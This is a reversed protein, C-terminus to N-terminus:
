LVARIPKKKKYVAYYWMIATAACLSYWTIIYQWHENRLNIRTQGGFPGGPVTSALDADVFIPETSAYRAMAPVDRYSWRNGAIDNEPAFPARKETSRIIAVIEVEGKIQGQPRTEPKVKDRSVWGRNVLITIGLDTCRFPTVVWTGSPGASSILGGGAGENNGHMYLSRRAVYIEKSHDFEGRIKVRRYELKKLEDPDTPLEIPESTTRINLDRILGLKWKRRQVQWTGLCFTTIPIILLANGYGSQSSGERATEVRSASESFSRKSRLTRIQLKNGFGTSANKFRNLWAFAKWRFTM